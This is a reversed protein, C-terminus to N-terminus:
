GLERAANAIEEDTLEQRRLRAFLANSALELDSAVIRRMNQGYARALRALEDDEAAAWVTLLEVLVPLDDERLRVESETQPLGFERVLRRVLEPSRGVEDALEEYTKSFAAPEPLFVGLNEYSLKGAAIGRAIVELEIGADEFAQMLRVRHVDRAAFPGDDDRRVLIGLRELERVREVSCGSREAIEAASLGM